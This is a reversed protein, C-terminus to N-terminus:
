RNRQYRFFHVNMYGVKQTQLLAVQAQLREIEQDKLASHALARALRQECQFIHCCTAPITTQASFPELLCVYVNYKM